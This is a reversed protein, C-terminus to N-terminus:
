AVGPKKSRLVKQHSAPQEALGRLETIRSAIDEPIVAAADSELTGDMEGRIVQVTLVFAELNWTVAEIAVAV